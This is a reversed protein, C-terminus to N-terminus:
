LEEVSIVEVISDLYERNKDLVIVKFSVLYETGNKSYMGIAGVGNEDLEHISENAAASGDSLEGLYCKDGRGIYRCGTTLIYSEPVVVYRDSDDDGILTIHEWDCENFPFAETNCNLAAEEATKCGEVGSCDMTEADGITECDFAVMGDDFIFGIMNYGNSELFMRKM